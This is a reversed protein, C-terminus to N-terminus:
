SVRRAVVVVTEEGPEPPHGTYRGEVVVSGFGAAELTARLDDPAYYTFRLRGHEEASCATAWAVPPGPM